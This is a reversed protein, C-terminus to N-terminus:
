DEKFPNVGFFDSLAKRKAAPMSEGVIELQRSLNGAELDSIIIKTQVSYAFGFAFGKDDTFIVAMQEGNSPSFVELRFRCKLFM